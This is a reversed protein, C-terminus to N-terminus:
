RRRSWLWTIFGGAIAGLLFILIPSTQASGSSVTLLYGGDM